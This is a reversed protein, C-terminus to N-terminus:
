YYPHVLPHGEDEEKQAIIDYPDQLDSRHEDHLSNLVEHNSSASVEYFENEM